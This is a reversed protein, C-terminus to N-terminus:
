FEFIYKFFLTCLCYCETRMQLFLPIFQPFNFLSLYCIGLKWLIDFNLHGVKSNTM